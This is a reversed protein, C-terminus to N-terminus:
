FIFFDANIRSGSQPFPTSLVIDRLLPFRRELTGRPMSLVPPFSDLKRGTGQEVQRDANTIIQQQYKRIVTFGVLKLSEEKKGTRYYINPDPEAGSGLM